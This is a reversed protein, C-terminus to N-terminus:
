SDAKAPIRMQALSLLNRWHEEACRTADSSIMEHMEEPTMADRESFNARSNGQAATPLVAIKGFGGANESSSIPQM